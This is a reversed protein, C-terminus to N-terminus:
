SDDEDGSDGMKYRKSKGLSLDDEDYEDYDRGYFFEAWIMCHDSPVGPVSKSSNSPIWQHTQGERCVGSRGTYEQRDARGSQKIWINDYTMSGELNTPSINTHTGDQIANVFKADRFDDFSEDTPTLNFDGAVMIDDEGPMSECIAEFINPITDIEGQLREIDENELGTAKLHVSLMVFDFRYAKFYGIFPKRAFDKKEGRRRQKRELLGHDKLEIKRSTDWLFGNRESARYMRGAVESTVCEWKGRHGTWRKLNPTTPNNLEDRIMELAGEEALEQAALISIGHELITMCIVERVGPNNAKQKTFSLMNYSGVRIVTRGKYKSPIAEVPKRKQVTLPLRFAEVIEDSTLLIVEEEEEEQIQEAM